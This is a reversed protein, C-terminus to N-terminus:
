YSDILRISNEKLVKLYEILQNFHEENHLCIGKIELNSFIKQEKDNSSATLPSSHTHNIEFKLEPM